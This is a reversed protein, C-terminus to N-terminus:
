EFNSTLLKNNIALLKIVIWNLTWNKMSYIIINYHTFESTANLAISKVKDKTLYM